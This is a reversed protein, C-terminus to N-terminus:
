KPTSICLSFDRCKGAGLVQVILRIRDRKRGHCEKSFDQLKIYRGADTSRVARMLDEYLDPQGMSFKKPDSAWCVFTASLASHLVGLGIGAVGYGLLFTMIFFLYSMWKLGDGDIDDKFAMVSFGAGCAGGVFGGITCGLNIPVAWAVESTVVKMGSDAFMSSLTKSSESFGTGKIAAISLVYHGM